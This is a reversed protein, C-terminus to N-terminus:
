PNPPRIANEPLKIVFSPPWLVITTDPHARWAKVQTRWPPGHAMLPDVWFYEHAGVMILWVAFGGAVKRSWGTTGAAMALLGLAFLVQPAVFYRQGFLVGLLPEKPGLSGVYSLTMALIGALYLWLVESNQSRWAAVGFTVLVIAAIMAAMIPWTSFPATAYAQMLRDSLDISEVRGLLPVLVHKVCVTVLLLYPPIGIGRSPEGHGYLVTLQVLTGISILVAQCFRPMSRDKIARFFFLPALLSPGPGAFPATLLVANYLWLTWGRRIEFALVLGVAIILHYQSTIPSLWIEESVPVTAVMVLAGALRWPDRLWRAQSIALLAGPLVQIALSIVLSVVPAYELEVLRTALLMTASAVVDLYGTHPQVLAELWPLRLADLLFFGDEAWFRGRLVGPMRIAVLVTFAAFLSARIWAKSPMPGPVPQAAAQM